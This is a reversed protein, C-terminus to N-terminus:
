NMQIVVIRKPRFRGNRVSWNGSRGILVNEMGEYNFSSQDIYNGDIGNKTITIDTSGNWFLFQDSKSSLRYGHHPTIIEFKKM